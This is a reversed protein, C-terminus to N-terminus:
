PLNNSRIEAEAAKGLEAWDTRPFISSAPTEDPM